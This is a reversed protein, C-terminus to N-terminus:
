IECFYFKNKLYKPESDLFLGGEEGGSVPLFGDLLASWLSPMWISWGIPLVGLMLFTLEASFM